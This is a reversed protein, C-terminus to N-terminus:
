MLISKGINIKHKLNYNFVVKNQQEKLQSRHEKSVDGNNHKFNKKPIKKSEPM